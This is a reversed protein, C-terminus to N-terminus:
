KEFGSPDSKNNITFKSHPYANIKFINKIKAVIM